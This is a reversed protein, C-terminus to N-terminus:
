IRLSGPVLWSRVSRGRHSGQGTYLRTRAFNRTGGPQGSGGAPQTGGTRHIGGASQGAAGAFQTQQAGCSSGPQSTRALPCPPQHPKLWVEEIM